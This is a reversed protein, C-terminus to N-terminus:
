ALPINMLSLWSISGNPQFATVAQFQVSSNYVTNVLLCYKLLNLLKEQVQWDLTVGLASTLLCAVAFHEKLLNGGSSTQPTLASSLHHFQTLFADLDLRVLSSSFTVQYGSFSLM